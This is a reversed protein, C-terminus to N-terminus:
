SGYNQSDQSRFAIAKNSLSIVNERNIITNEKGQPTRFLDIEQSITQDISTQNRVRAAANESMSLYLEKNLYLKEIGNALGEADEAEALIGCNKDVFEPIAAVATTIPVLGSSMAEDRSVGQSDTRTPVLLVGYEKHLAAIESHTLFKQMLKVNKYKKVPKTLEDFLEGDGVILFELESFWEKTSLLEIAAITLDNAYKRSAFPRISLIKKRQAPPKEVYNFVHTDIPNHIISYKSKPVTVGLDNMIEDAFYQSVFVFNLNEPINAFLERWFKMRHECLAKTHEVEANDMREFEYTRRKWHQIEAGHIWATVKIDSIHPKLIEWMNKDMLHVLVHEYQGTEITNRFLHNDGSVVDVNEFEQFFKNPHQDLKFVDVDTQLDKYAKVRSHLFGYKYLDDYSPYQKTMVLATNNAVVTMPAEKNKAFTVKRISSLGNGIVKFGLRIHTCENPIALTTSDQVPGIHHSTKNKDSDLFEFVIKIHNEKTECSVQFESNKNLNLEDRSYLNDLYFYNHQGAGLKSEITMQNEHMALKLRSSQPQTISEMIAEATLTIQDPSPLKENSERARLSNATQYLNHLNAGIDLDKLDSVLNEYFEPSYKTANKCYHFEDLAILTKESRIIADDPSSIFANLVGDDLIQDSIISCRLPLDGTLKYQQNDDAILCQDNEMHYFTKKGYAYGETYKEGAMLDTLFNTGYYDKPNIFGYYQAKGSEKYLDSIESTIQINQNLDIGMTKSKTYIVLRKNSYNQRTFQEIVNEADKASSVVSFVLIEKEKQEFSWERLTLLLYHLRHRYTHESMVKRLAMLRHKRYVLESDNLPTLRREIESNNDSSIVLDGFLRRMGRSFNSVVITNSAMLEFVRRAFMSQSEKITNLNIGYKYGKYAIDIDEFPLTGVIHKNFSEPFQYHPHDNEYNRDYIDLKGFESVANVLMGIDRQREPYRLYYSGAFCFGDKRKKSEIPNHNKTQAAFPLFYVNDTECDYKYKPICDVDTTFIFDVQRAIELFTSYHAPDEKNWLMSPINQSKCWAIISKIEVSNNSIKTKWLGDLGQWASEIFVFHPAFDILQQKWNVPHIQLVNCENEYSHQTFPDMIGAVRIEKLTEPKSKTAEYLSPILADSSFVNNPLKNSTKRKAPVVKQSSVDIIMENILLRGKGEIRLNLIVKKIGKGPTYRKKQNLAIRQIGTRYSHGDFELINLSCKLDGTITGICYLDLVTNTNVSIGSSKAIKKYESTQANHIFNLESNKTITISTGFKNCETLVHKAAVNNNTNWGLSAFKKLGRVKFFIDRNNYLHQSIREPSRFVLLRDIKKQPTQISIPAKYKKM